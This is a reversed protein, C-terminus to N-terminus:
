PIKNPPWGKLNSYVHFGQLESTCFWLFELRLTSEFLLLNWSESAKWFFVGLKWCGKPFGREMQLSGSPLGSKLPWHWPLCLTHFPFAQQWCFPPSPNNPKWVQQNVRFLISNIINQMTAFSHVWLDTPQESCQVMSMALGILPVMELRSKRTTEHEKRNAKWVEMLFHLTIGYKWGFLLFGVNHM